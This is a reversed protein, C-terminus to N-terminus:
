VPYVEMCILRSPAGAGLGTSLLTAEVAAARPPAGTGPEAGPRARPAWSPPPPPHAGCLPLLLLLPPLLTCSGRLLRSRAGEGASVKARLSAGAAPPGTGTRPPALLAPPLAAPRRAAHRAATRCCPARATDCAAAARLAAKAKASCSGGVGLSSGCWAVRVVHARTCDCRALAPDAPLPLDLPALAVSDPPSGDGPESILRAMQSM